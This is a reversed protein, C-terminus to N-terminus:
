RVLRLQRRPPSGDELFRRALHHPMPPDTFVLRARDSFLWRAASPGLPRVLAYPRWGEAPRVVLEDGARAGIEDIAEVVEFVGTFPDM